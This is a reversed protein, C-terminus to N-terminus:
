EQWCLQGFVVSYEISFVIQSVYWWSYIWIMKLVFIKEYLKRYLYKNSWIQIIQHYLYIWINTWLTIKIHIFINQYKKMDNKPLPQISEIYRSHNSHPVLLQCEGPSSTLGISVKEGWFVPLKWAKINERMKAAASECERVNKSGCFTKFVKAVYFKM